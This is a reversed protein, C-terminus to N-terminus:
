PAPSGRTIVARVKRPLSRLPVEGRIAGLALLVAFSGWGAFALRAGLREARSDYFFEVRRCGRPVPVACLLGNAAVVPVPRGDVRAHWGPAYYVESIVLVADQEVEVAVEMREPVERAVHVVRGRGPPRIGLDSELIALSEPEFGATTVRALVQEAAVTEWRPVIWARPLPSPFEYVHESGFTRVLRVVDTQLPFPSLAFRVGLMRLVSLNALAGSELMRAYRAVKAPYYGTVSEVGFAMLRNSNAREGLPLVRFPGEQSSLWREAPTPQLSRALDGRGFHPAVIRASVEWLDTVGAVVLAGAVAKPAWAARAGRGLWLLVIGPVLLFAAGRVGDHLALRAREETLAELTQAPVREEGPRRAERAASSAVSSLLLVVAAGAVFGWGARTWLRRAGELVRQVGLGALLCCGLQFLVLMLVPVRFRNFQPLHRFLLDYVLPSYRGMSVLLSFAMMILVVKVWRRQFGSVGGLAALAVLLAGAYNPADTFPMHGWYTAGGFGFAGPVVFTLIEVPHFSWQTAYDYALGGGPGAGRISHPAYEQAPLTLPASIAYGMSLGLGGLLLALVIRRWQRWPPLHGLFFFVFALLGYFAIQPHKARLMLGTVVGLIAARSWGPSDVVRLAAWAMVPVYSASFLKGGHDAVTVSVLSTALSFGCGGLIAGLTGVGLRRCLLFTWVAGLLHHLVKAEDSGYAGGLGGRLLRNVPYDVPLMMSGRAPMGACVHPVWRPDRGHTALYRQAYAQAPAAAQVTDPSVFSRGEVLVARFFVGHIAVLAAIAWWSGGRPLRWGPARSGPPKQQPRVPTRRKAM